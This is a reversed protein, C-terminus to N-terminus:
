FRTETPFNANFKGRFRPECSALRASGLLARRQENEENLFFFHLFRTETPFNANFKGRFRPESSALRASGLLARSQENEEDFFVRKRRFIPMLNEESVLSAARLGRLASCLEARSTKKM